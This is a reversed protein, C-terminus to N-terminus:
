MSFKGLLKNLRDENMKYKLNFSKGIKETKEPHFARRELFFCEFQKQFPIKRIKNTLKIESRVWGRMDRFIENFIFRKQFNTSLKFLTSISELSQRDAAEHFSFAM